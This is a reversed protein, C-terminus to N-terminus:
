AFASTFLQRGSLDYITLGELKAAEIILQGNTPNPYAAVIAIALSENIM